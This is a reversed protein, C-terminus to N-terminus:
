GFLQAMYVLIDVTGTVTPATTWNLTFSALSSPTVWWGGANWHFTPVVSYQTGSPLPLAFTEVVGVTGSAVAMGITISQYPVLGNDIAQQTQDGFWQIAATFNRLYQVFTQDQLQPYTPLSIPDIRKAQGTM